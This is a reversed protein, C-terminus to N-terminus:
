SRGFLGAAPNIWDDENVFEYETYTDPDLAHMMTSVIGIWHINEDTFDSTKKGGNFKSGIRHNEVIGGIYTYISNYGTGKSRDNGTGLKPMKPDPNFIINGYPNPATHYNEYWDIIMKTLDDLIRNKLASDIQVYQTGATTKKLKFKVKM